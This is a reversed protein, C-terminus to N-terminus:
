PIPVQAICSRPVSNLVFSSILSPVARVQHPPPQGGIFSISQLQLDGDVQLHTVTQLPIRHRFEYFPNGNVVVQLVPVLDPSLM